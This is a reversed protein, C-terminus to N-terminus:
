VKARFTIMVNRGPASIGSAFLRYNRDMINEVGLQVSYKSLFSYGIKINFTAWSPMGQSTAYQNNDEGFPNYDRIRKWANYLAYFEFKWPGLQSEVSAKGLLPPIHDLPVESSDTRIRGITKSLSNSLSLNKHVQIVVETNWGYLYARNANIIQFVASPTGNYLVSDEGNYRAKQTTLINSYDTYFLGLEVLINKSIQPRILGEITVTREPKLEPNPIILRGTTSEFVKSLDDVNPSRFGTSLNVSYKSNKETLYNLAISGALQGNHQKVEDYDFPFFTKNIFKSQLAYSQYRLGSQLSLSQNLDRQYILYVSPQQTWSGGDPYRTDLESEDGSIINERYAVSNVSNYIYEIGYQLKQKHWQKRFDLNCGYVNVLEERHDLDDMQYRRTHRSEKILQSYLNLKMEDFFRNKVRYSFLYSILLRDQPGYYWDAFRLISNSVETLRDYRPINSSTSYQLNFDHQLFSSQKLSIKQLIDFQQYGSFKQINPNSNRVLSDRGRIREVYFERLGLTGIDKSRHQGQRLDGFDSYSVSTLCAVKPSSIIFDIHGTKEQNASAYRMMLNSGFQINQEAFKTNKSYFLIAGGLGDSGYMLSAPGFLIEMRDLMNQDITIANQLHGGRYIANNMKIGDSVLLIKNAEFGRLVPSGGGMQSKQVFVKGSQFLLDAATSANTQEITKQNFIQIQQAQKNLREQFRNVSIQIEDLTM